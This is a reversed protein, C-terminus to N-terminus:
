RYAPCCQRAEREDGWGAFESHDHELKRLKIRIDRGIKTFGRVDAAWAGIEHLAAFRASVSHDILSSRTRTTSGYRLTKTKRALSAIAPWWSISTLEWLAASRMRPLVSLPNAASMSAPISWYPAPPVSRSLLFCRTTARTPRRTFRRFARRCTSM